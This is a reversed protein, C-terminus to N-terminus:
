DPAQPKPPLVAEAQILLKVEDSTFSTLSTMGFESRHITGVADVGCRLQVLFPKRTCGYNTVTLPVAKTVGLLTLNGEITQPKGDAFLIDGKYVVQPFQEVNFFDKGRLLKEMSESGTSVSDAALAIDVSGRGEDQDLVVKGSSHNFRGRQTSIGLHGIEFTAITHNPDIDYEQPAALAQTFAFSALLLCPVFSLRYTNALSM